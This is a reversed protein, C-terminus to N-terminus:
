YWVISFTKVVLALLVFIQSLENKMCYFFHKLSTLLRLRNMRHSFSRRDPQVTRFCIERDCFPCTKPQIRSTLLPPWQGQSQSPTVLGSISQSPSRSPLTSSSHAWRPSPRDSTVTALKHFGRETSSDSSHSSPRMLCDCTLSCVSRWSVGMWRGRSTM